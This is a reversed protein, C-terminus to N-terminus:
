RVKELAPRTPARLLKWENRPWWPLLREFENNVIAHCECARAGFKRHDLVSMRGQPRALAGTAQLKALVASVAAGGAGLADALAADSLALQTGPLRDLGNLLWRCLQQELSHHRHCIATQSMQTMLTQIYRLMLQLVAGGQQLEAKLEAAALRYGMGASLVVARSPTKEVGVVRCAGVLGDNGVVAIQASTGDALRCVVSVLATVPFYVDALEADPEYLVQGHPLLVLDLRPRWRALEVGPMAVLLRNEFRM